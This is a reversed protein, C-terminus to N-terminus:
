WRQKRLARRFDGVFVVQRRPAGREPRISDPEPSGEAVWRLHEKWREWVDSM